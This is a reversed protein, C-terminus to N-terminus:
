GGSRPRSRVPPRASPPFCLCKFRNARTVTLRSLKRTSAAAFPAPGGCRRATGILSARQGARGSARQGAPGSARQGAPGSARQGAPGSARRDAPPATARRDAPVMVGSVATGHDRYSQRPIQRFTVAIMFGPVTRSAAMAQTTISPGNPAQYHGWRAPWGGKPPLAPSRGCGRCAAGRFGPGRQQPWSGLRHGTPLWRTERVTAARYRAIRAASRREPM